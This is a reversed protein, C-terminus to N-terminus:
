YVRTIFIFCKSVGEQRQFYRVSQTIDDDNMRGGGGSARGESHIDRGHAGLLLFLVTMALERLTNLWNYSWFSAFRQIAFIFIVMSIWDRAM